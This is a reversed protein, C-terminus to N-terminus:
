SFPLDDPEGPMDEFTPPPAQQPPSAQASEGSSTAQGSDAPRGGLMQLKDVRLKTSTREVGEKDKYKETKLRGDILVHSGKGLYKEIVEATKNWAECRYWETESVVEGDKKKWKETVAVNFKAVAVGSDLYKVEPPKGLNGEIITKHYGM